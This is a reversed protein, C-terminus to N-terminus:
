AGSAVPRAAHRKHQEDTALTDDRSSPRRPEERGSSPAAPRFGRAIMWAALVMEQVFIPAFLVNQATSNVAIVAYVALVDAAVYFPIAVLGWLTIWRPVIRSRYLLVYFIGAGLCFVITQVVASTADSDIMLSGLRVGAPSATGPGASMVEGLPAILLWGIAIVVYCATEVAGRVILYGISLVEHVRRLVPFLVVPIFALSLGMVLVLLGSTVVAGPHEAAAALPDRADRVPAGVVKSLVGAVTGTIYLVGATTAAAKHERM